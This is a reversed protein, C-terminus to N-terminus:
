NETAKSFRKHGLEIALVTGGVAYGLLLLYFASQLHGLRIVPTDQSEELPKEKMAWLMKMWQDIFGGYQLGRISLESM